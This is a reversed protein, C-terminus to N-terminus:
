KFLQLIENYFLEKNKYHFHVSFYKQFWSLLLIDVLKLTGVTIGCVAMSSSKPVSEFSFM